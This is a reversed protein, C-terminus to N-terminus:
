RSWCDVELYIACSRHAPEGAGARCPAPTLEPRPLWGSDALRVCPDWVARHAPLEPWALQGSDAVRDAQVQVVYHVLRGPWEMWGSDSQRDARVWIVSHVPLGM